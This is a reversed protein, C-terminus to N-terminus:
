GDRGRARKENLLQELERIAEEDDLQNVVHALLPQRYRAVLPKVLDAVIRDEFAEQTIAPAFENARGASRKKVHGKEVLNNLITKITSYAFKGRFAPLIDGVAAWGGRRWLEEMVPTELPGLASARTGDVRLLRRM